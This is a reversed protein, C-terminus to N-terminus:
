IIFLNFLKKKYNRIRIRKFLTDDIHSLIIIEASLVSNYFIHVHCVFREFPYSTRANIIFLSLHSRFSVYFLVDLM